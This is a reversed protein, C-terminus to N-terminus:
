AFGIFRIEPQLEQGYEEKVRERIHVILAVVDQATAQGDNVIFNAHVESVHAGGVSFGKLGLSDILQGASADPPNRFISGGNPVTLPQEKRRRKQLAEMKARISPLHGKKVRLSGEVVVEGVPIGSRRYSWPLQGGEYRVLGQNPRLVTLSDVMTSIWETSSGANMFLAGGFTGPIGVCFELGSYGGKFASQVLNSLMVGAGAVLLHEGLEEDPFSFYKFERGLTLVAGKFGSDNVLLNSGKGVICWPMDHIKLVELSRSIDALTACEIYLSAPGGIRFSTHRAMPEDILVTGKISGEIDCYADFASMALIGKLYRV